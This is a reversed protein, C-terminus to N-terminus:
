LVEFLQSLPTNLALAIQALTWVSTGTKGLEIQSLQAASIGCTASVAAQTYGRLKRLERLRKGLALNFERELPRPKAVMSAHRALTKMLSGGDLPKVVLDCAGADLAARAQQPNPFASMAVVRTQPSTQRLQTILESGDGDALRLDVLAVDAPMASIHKLGETADTFTSVDHARATLWDHLRKCAAADDDIVITRIRGEVRM